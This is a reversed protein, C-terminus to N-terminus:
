RASSYLVLLGSETENRMGLEEKSLFGSRYFNCM